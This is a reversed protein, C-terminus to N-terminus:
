PFYDCLFVFFFCLNLKKCVEYLALTMESILPPKASSYPGMIEDNIVRTEWHALSCKGEYNQAAENWTMQNDTPIGIPINNCNFHAKAKEM